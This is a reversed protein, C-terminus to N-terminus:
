FIQLGGISALGGSFGQLLEGSLVYHDLVLALTQLLGDLRVVLLGDLVVGQLHAVAGEM